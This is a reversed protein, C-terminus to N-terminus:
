ILQRKMLQQICIKWYNPEKHLEGFGEFFNFVFNNKKWFAVQIFSNYYFKARKNMSDFKIALYFM